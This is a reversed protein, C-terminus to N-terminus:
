RLEILALAAGDSKAAVIKLELKAKTHLAGLLSKIAPVAAQRAKMEPVQQNLRKLKRGCADLRNSIANVNRTAAVYAGGSTGSAQSQANRLQRQLTRFDDELQPIAVSAERLWKDAAEAIDQLRQNTMPIDESGKEKFVPSVIVSYTEDVQRTFKVEVAAGPQNLFEIVAEQGPALSRKDGKLSAGTPFDVLRELSLRVHEAKPPTAVAIKRVDKAKDLDLVLPEDRKAERLQAVHRHAGSTLVIQCNALQKWPTEDDVQDWIYRLERDALEFQGLKRKPAAEDQVNALYHVHWTTASNEAPSAVLSASEALDALAHDLAIELQETLSRAFTAVPQAATAVPSPMKLASPLGAFPTGSAAPAPTTAPESITTPNASAPPFTSPPLTSPPPKPASNNATGNHPAPNAPPIAPPVSAPVSPPPTQPSPLARPEDRRQEQQVVVLPESKRQQMPFIVKVIIVWGIAIGIAGGGVIKLAEIMAPPM